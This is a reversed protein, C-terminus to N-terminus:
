LYYARLLKFLNDEFQIVLNVYELYHNGTNYRKSYYNKIIINRLKEWREINQKVSLILPEICPKKEQLFYLLAKKSYIIGTLGNKLEWFADFRTLTNQTVCYVKDRLDNTKNLLYKCIWLLAQRGGIIEGKSAYTRIFIDNTVKYENNYYRKISTKILSNNLENISQLYSEKFIVNEIILCKEFVKQFKEKEYMGIDPRKRPHMMKKLNLESLQDVFYYYKEDRGIMMMVHGSEKFDRMDHFKDNYYVSFPLMADVTRFIVYGNKDLMKDMLYVSKKGDNKIKIDLCTYMNKDFTINGKISSRLFNNNAVRVYFSLDRLFLNSYNIDKNKLINKMVIAILQEHCNGALPVIEDKLMNKDYFYTRELFEM